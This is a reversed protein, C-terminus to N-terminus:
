MERAQDILFRAAESALARRLVATTITEALPALRALNDTLAALRDDPMGADVFPRWLHEDFRTAFRTALDAGVEVLHEYADLMEDPPIGMRVLTSGVDLFTADVVLEADDFTVLGLSVARQTVEISLETDGFREVLEAPELRLMPPPQLATAATAELGLLDSLTRGHEWENM